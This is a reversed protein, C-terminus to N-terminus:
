RINEGAKTLLLNHIASSRPLNERVDVRRLRREIVYARGFGLELLVDRLMELTVGGRKVADLNLEMILKLMPNRQSLQRMGHLAACESGEIDMKILDVSPWSRASFFEDLTTSMVSLHCGSATPVGLWGRAMEHRIFEVAGSRDSIAEDIAEINTIGNLQISRELYSFAEPEPEFAFVRGGIGVLSSLMLTYYGINAGLDVVTMGPRVVQKMLATVDREYTGTAYARSSPSHPPVLMRLGDSLTVRTTRPMPPFLRHAIRAFVGDFPGLVGMRKLGDRIRSGLSWVANLISEM